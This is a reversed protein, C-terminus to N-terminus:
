WTKELLSNGHRWELPKSNAFQSLDPFQKVLCSERNDGHFSAKWKSSVLEM